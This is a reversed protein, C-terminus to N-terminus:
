CFPYNQTKLGCVLSFQWKPNPPSVETKRRPFYYFLLRLLELNLTQGVDLIEKGWSLLGEVSGKPVAWTVAISVSLHTDWVAPDEGHVGLALQYLFPGFSVLGRLHM